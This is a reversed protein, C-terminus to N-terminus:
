AALKTIASLEHTQLESALHEKIVRKQIKGSTTLPLDEIQVFASPVKHPALNSQCYKKLQARFEAFDAAKPCQLVAVVEEGFVDHPVGVVASRVVDPHANLLAEIEGPHVNLGGRIILDKKRGSIHLYGQKDFHGLDGTAFFGDTSTELQPASAGAALYGQMVCSTKIMVEEDRIAVQVGELGQGVGLNGKADSPSATLILTEALGYNERLKVGFTQYFLKKMEVDLPASGCIILKIHSACYTSGFAGRRMKMLLIVMTPVLWLSNVQHEAAIDWFQMMTRPSFAPTVVLSGGAVFVMLMEMFGGTFTMPMECTFRSSAQVGNGRVLREANDLLSHARHCILKPTGTTGSTPLYLGTNPSDPLKAVQAFLEADNATIDDRHDTTALNASLTKIGDKAFSSKEGVIVIKADLESVLRNIESKPTEPHLPLLARDYYLCYLAVMVFAVSNECVLVVPSDTPVQARQLKHHLQKIKLLVERYSLTKKTSPDILFTQSLHEYSFM